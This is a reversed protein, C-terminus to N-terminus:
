SDYFRTAACTTRKYGANYLSPEIKNYQKLFIVNM